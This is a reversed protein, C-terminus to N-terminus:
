LYLPFCEYMYAIDRKYTIHYLTNCKVRMEREREREREREMCTHPNDRSDHSTLHMEEGRAKQVVRVRDGRAAM